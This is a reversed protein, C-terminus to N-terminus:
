NLWRNRYTLCRIKTNAMRDLFKYFTCYNRCFTCIGLFIVLATFFFLM